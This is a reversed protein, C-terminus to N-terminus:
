MYLSVGNGVNQSSSGEDGGQAEVKVVLRWPVLVQGVYRGNPNEGPGIRFEDTNVLLINM